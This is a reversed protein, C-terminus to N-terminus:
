CCIIIIILVELNSLDHTIYYVVSCITKILRWKRFQADSPRSSYILNGKQLIKNYDM